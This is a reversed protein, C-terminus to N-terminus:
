NIYGRWGFFLNCAYKPRTILCWNMGCGLWSPTFSPMFFQEERYDANSPFPCFCPFFWFELVLLPYCFTVVICMPWPHVEHSPLCMFPCASSRKGSVNELSETRVPICLLTAQSLWWPPVLLIATLSLGHPAYSQSTNHLLVTENWSESVTWHHLALSLVSM